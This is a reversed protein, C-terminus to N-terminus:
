VHEFRFSIKSIDFEYDFDFIVFNKPHVIRLDKYKRKPSVPVASMILKLKSHNTLKIAKGFVEIEFFKNM